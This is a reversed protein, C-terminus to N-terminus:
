LKGFIDQLVVMESVGTMMRPKGTRHDLYFAVPVGAQQGGNQQFAAYMFSLSMEMATTTEKTPQMNIAEHRGLVRGLVDKDKSQLITAALPLGNVPDGLAVTPIWKIAYGKKVYERTMNYAKRCYPCRPDIIIYVTNEIDGKGEKFGALTDVTKMAEPVAGTFKGDMAAVSETTLASTMQAPISSQPSSVQPSVIPSVTPVGAAPIFQDSINRGSAADWIVGTFLVQVDPTTYLVVKRGNKEVTWATLGGAGVLRQSVIKGYRSVIESAPVGSVTLPSRTQGKVTSAANNDLLPVPQQGVAKIAFGGGIVIIAAVLSAAIYKGKMISKEKLLLFRHRDCELLNTTERILFIISITKIKVLLSM